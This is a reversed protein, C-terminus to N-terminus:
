FYRYFIIIKLDYWFSFINSETEEKTMFMKEKMRKEIDISFAQCRGELLLDNKIRDDQIKDRFEKNKQEIFQKIEDNNKDLTDALASKAKRVLENYDKISNLIENDFKETHKTVTLQVRDELTTYNVEIKKRIDLFQGDVNEQGKLIQDQIM